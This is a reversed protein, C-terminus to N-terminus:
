KLKGFGLTPWVFRTQPDLLRPAELKCSQLYILLDIFKPSINISCGSCLINQRSHQSCFYALGDGDARVSDM